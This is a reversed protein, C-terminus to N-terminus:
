IIEPLLPKSMLHHLGITPIDFVNGEVVWGGREYFARAGVRANCWLRTCRRERAHTECAGLLAAGIGRSRLGPSTAMGRIRWDGPQPDRPHPDRMVTAVGVVREDISVAAHLTDPAEDGPFVLAEDAQGPRLVERRLPKVLEVSVARPRM